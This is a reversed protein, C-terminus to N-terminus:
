TNFVEFYRIDTQCAISDLAFASITPQLRLTPLDISVTAKLIGDLKLTGNTSSIIELVWKHFATDVLVDTNVTTLSTISNTILRKFTQDNRDDGMFLHLGYMQTIPNKLGVNCVGSASNRKWTSICSCSTELYHRINNFTLQTNDATTTGSTLRLGGDIADVMAVSGTGVVDNLNWWARLADGDFYDVFWSKKVVHPPSVMELVNEFTM